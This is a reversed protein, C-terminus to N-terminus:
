WSTRVKVNLKRLHAYRISKSEPVLLSTSVPLKHSMQRAFYVARGYRLNKFELLTVGGRLQTTWSALKGAGKGMRLGKPKKTLPLHPFAAFWVKRRTLDSKRVAKKLFIKTRFIQKASLRLPSLIRLGFDGYSLEPNVWSKTKRLKQRTKYKFKRPQLMM